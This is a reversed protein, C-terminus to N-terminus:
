RIISITGTPNLGSDIPASDDGWITGDKFKGYAEYPYSGPPLDENKFKGDWSESPSGDEDLYSSEWVLNGWLDYIRVHYEELGIGKPMFLAVEPNPHGPALANPIFLGKEELCLTRVSDITVTGSGGNIDFVSLTVSYTSDAAYTHEANLPTPGFDEQKAEMDGFDWIWRDFDVDTYPTLNTFTIFKSCETHSFFPEIPEPVNVIVDKVLSCGTSDTATLLVKYSGPERYLHEPAPDTIPDATDGFSWEYTEIANGLPSLSLPDVEFKIPVGFCTDKFKIEYDFFDEIYITKTVSTYCGNNDTVMLEIIQSGSSEFEFQPNQLDSYYDDGFTWWWERLTSQVSFSTDTFQVLGNCYDVQEFDFGALPPVKITIDFEASDSCSEFGDITTKIILEVTYDGPNEYIHGAVPQDHTDVRSTGDGFDWIRSVIVQDEHADFYGFDTVDMLYAPQGSCYASDQYNNIQQLWVVPQAGVKIYCSDLIFHDECDAMGNAILRLKVSKGADLPHPIYTPTETEANM